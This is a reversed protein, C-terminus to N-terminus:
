KRFSVKMGISEPEIECSGFPTQSAMRRPDDPLYARKLLSHRFIWQTLVSNIAGLHMGEVAAQIDAASADKRLDSIVARGGPKLMRHMEKLVGVPDSFNKFAARCYILDFSDDEFPAASADGQRFEVDVGAKEANAAAIEVFSRSIDLGVIRFSGLEALAIAFYGPGPAVELVQSGGQLTPAIERAAQQYQDHEPRVVACGPRRARIVAIVVPAIM